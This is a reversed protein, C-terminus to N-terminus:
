LNLGHTWKLQTPFLDIKSANMYRTKIQQQQSMGPRPIMLVAASPGVIATMSLLGLSTLAIALKRRANLAPSSIASIFDLSWLYSLQPARAAGSLAGLPIYDDLAQARM